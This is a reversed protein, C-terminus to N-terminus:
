SLDCRANVKSSYYNQHSKILLQNVTFQLM